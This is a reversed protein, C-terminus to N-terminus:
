SSVSFGVQSDSLVVKGLDQRDGSGESGMIDNGAELPSESPFSSAQCHEKVVTLILSSLVFPKPFASSFFCNNDGEAKNSM